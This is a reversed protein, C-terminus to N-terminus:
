IIIQQGDTYLPEPDYPATVDPIRHLSVKGAASEQAGDLTRTVIWRVDDNGICEIILRDTDKKWATVFHGTPSLGITPRRTPHLYIMMRLLTSFSKESPLQDEPQWNDPDLLTDLRHFLKARWDSSFHMAVSATMRKLSVLKTLLQDPLDVKAIKTDPITSLRSLPGSVLTRVMDIRKKIAAMDVDRTGTTPYSPQPEDFLSLSRSQALLAHTNM